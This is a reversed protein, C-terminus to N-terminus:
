QYCHYWHGFKFVWNERFCAGFRENETLCFSRNPSTKAFVPEIIKTVSTQERQLVVLWTALVLVGGQSSLSIELRRPRDRSGIIDNSCGHFPEDM